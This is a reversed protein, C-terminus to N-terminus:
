EAPLVLRFGEDFNSGSPSGFDRFTVHSIEVRFNWSGGRTVRSAGSEPGSPNNQSGSPYAGYRDWCWEGVNGSMDHLGLENAMKGGAPHTKGGSNDNYWAVEDITNSGSYKYRQTANGGRAAFEWEAETPLRYGNANKNWSVAEGSITYAPTRGEQTSLWNSYEVADYWSVVVVPDIETQSFYPNRWNADARQEWISEIEVWGGGGKEASTQYGTAAVFRRFMGVTVEYKAMAFDSVTVSHVPKEDDEGETSGMQFTSGEVIVFDGNNSLGVSEDCGSLLLFLGAIVLFYIGYISSCKNEYM